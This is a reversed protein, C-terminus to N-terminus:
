GGRQSSDPESVAELIRALPLFAIRRHDLFTSLEAHTMGPMYNPHERWQELQSRRRLHSGSALQRSVEFDMDISDMDEDSDNQPPSLKPLCDM